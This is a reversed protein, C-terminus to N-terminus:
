SLQRQLCTRQNVVLDRSNVDIGKRTAALEDTAFPPRLLAVHPVPARNLKSSLSQCHHNPKLRSRRAAAALGRRRPRRPETEPSRLRLASCCATPSAQNPGLPAVQPTPKRHSDASLPARRPLPLPPDATRAPLCVPPRKYAPAHVPTLLPHRPARPPSNLPTTRPLRCARADGAPFAAPPDPQCTPPVVVPTQPAARPPYARSDRPFRMMLRPRPDLPRPPSRRPRAATWRAGRPHLASARARAGSSSLKMQVAGSRFEWVKLIQVASLFRHIHSNYLSWDEVGYVRVSSWIFMYQHLFESALKPFFEARTFLSRCRQSSIKLWKEKSNWIGDQLHFTDRVIRCLKWIPLM